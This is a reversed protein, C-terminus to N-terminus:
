TESPFIGKLAIIYNMAIYPQRLDVAEQATAGGPPTQLVLSHMQTGDSAAAYSGNGGFFAGAADGPGPASLAELPHSHPPLQGSTLLVRDSGLSQSLSGGVPSM